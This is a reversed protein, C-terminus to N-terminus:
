GFGAACGRAVLNEAMKRSAEDIMKVDLTAGGKGAEIAEAYATLM